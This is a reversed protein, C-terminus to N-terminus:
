KAGVRNGSSPRLGASGRSPSGDSRRAQVMAALDGTSDRRPALRLHGAIKSKSLPRPQGALRLQLRLQAAAAVTAGAAIDDRVHGFARGDNALPAGKTMHAVIHGSHRWVCDGGYGRDEWAYVHEAEDGGHPKLFLRGFGDLRLTGGTGEVLLVGNTM